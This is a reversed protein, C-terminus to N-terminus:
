EHPETEKPQKNRDLQEIDRVPIGARTAAGIMHRTGRGGPFAVVFDPHGLKLMANNRVPGARNGYFDWLAPFIALAIGHTKAWDEGLRDAGAAGGSIILSIPGHSHIFNLEHAVRDHDSYDRGGCVLVRIPGHM